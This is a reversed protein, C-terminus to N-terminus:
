KSDISELAIIIKSGDINLYDLKIFGFDENFYATLKTNGLKSMATGKVIFCDLVGFTTNEKKYDIIEYYMENLITGNWEKWRYDGWKDGVNLKWTWSNGIEYPSKIFPFPNLELIRFMSERPPHVWINHKNEILGTVNNSEIPPYSFMIVTQNYDPNYKIMPKLGSRIGMKYKLVTNSSISDTSTFDWQDGNKEFKYNKGNKSYNYNFIFTSNPRYIRNDHNYRNIDKVISDFKEIIIGNELIFEKENNCSYLIYFM